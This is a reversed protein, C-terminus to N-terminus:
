RWKVTMFRSNKKFKEPTHELIAKRLKTLLLEKTFTKHVVISVERVPEPNEFRRVNTKDLNEDFALEPILTYGSVNRVFKKLTEISGGEMQLNRRVTHEGYRCLNMTQNRFCHGQGLLWLDKQDLDDVGIKANQLISNNENSFLLFPEYFVPIERLNVEELPTVLIGIDLMDHELGTIIDKSQLEQIEFRTNPHEQLFPGIFLPLLYPSLTPIVGLRFTGELQNREDNVFSKLQEIDRLIQRARAIFIEGLPTPKLPQLSRDFLLMSMQEELKKVQLTLTPQAVNCSKAANVFHRHNDLAVVYQLQQITM